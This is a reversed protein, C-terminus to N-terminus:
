TLTVLLRRGTIGMEVFFVNDIAENKTTFIRIPMRHDLDFFQSCPILNVTEYMELGNLRFNAKIFSNDVYTLVSYGGCVSMYFIDGAKMGDSNYVRSM